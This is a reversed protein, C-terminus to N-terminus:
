GFNLDPPRHFVSLTPDQLVKSRPIKVTLFKQPQLLFISSGLLSERFSSTAFKESFSNALNVSYTSLLSRAVAGAAAAGISVAGVGDALMPINM